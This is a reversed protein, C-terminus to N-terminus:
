ISGTETVEFRQSPGWLIRVQFHQKAFHGKFHRVFEAQKRFMYHASAKRTRAAVVSVKRWPQVKVLCASYLGTAALNALSIPEDSGAEFAAM